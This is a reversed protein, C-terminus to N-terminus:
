RSVQRLRKVERELEVIRQLHTMTEDARGEEGALLGLTAKAEEAAHPDVQPLVLVLENVAAAM